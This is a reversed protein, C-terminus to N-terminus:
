CVGLFHGITGNSGIGGGKNGIGVNNFVPFRQVCFFGGINRFCILDVGKLASVGKGKGLETFDMGTKIPPETVM